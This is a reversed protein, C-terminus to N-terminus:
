LAVEIIEGIKKAQKIQEDTFNFYVRALLKLQEQENDTINSKSNKSFGYIFISRNNKKFAIITRVGSRKGKGNLAIRKKLVGQGLDADILGSEIERVADILNIDTLRVKRMWKAFQYHKFIQM